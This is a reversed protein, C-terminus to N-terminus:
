AVVIARLRVRRCVAADLDDGVASSTNAANSDDAGLGGFVDGSEAEGDIPFEIDFGQGPQDNGIRAVGLHSFV